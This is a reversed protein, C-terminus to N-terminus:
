DIHHFMTTNVLPLRSVSAGHRTLLAVDMLKIISTTTKTKECIRYNERKSALM